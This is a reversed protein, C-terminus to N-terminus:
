GRTVHFERCANAGVQLLLSTWLAGLLLGSDSPEVGIGSRLTARETRQMYLTNGFEVDAGAKGRVIVHVDEEYLSLIKDANAVPREGIIREHAQKIAAPLQELVEDIRDIVQQAQAQTWDTAQWHAVLLERHRRAHNRVVGVVAKMQRLVRKRARKSDEQRGAAAMGMCLGNIERIFHEPEQMRSKLGHERILGTAKMLTRTADRLLLWDVPYHINSELCTTDMWVTELEIDNVLWLRNAGGPTERQRAARLLRSVVEDMTAGAVWEAYRQLQSKSPVRVAELRDLGCFWQFLACEALRRSM